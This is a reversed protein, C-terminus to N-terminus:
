IEALAQKAVVQHKRGPPGFIYMLKSRIDPAAKVNAVMSEFEHTILHLPHDTKPPKTVGYQVPETEPM